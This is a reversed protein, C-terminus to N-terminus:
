IPYDRSVSGSSHAFVPLHSHPLLLPVTRVQAYSFWDKFANGAPVIDSIYSRSCGDQIPVRDWVQDSAPVECRTPLHVGAIERGTFIKRAGGGEITM